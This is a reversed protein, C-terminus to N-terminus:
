YGPILFIFKQNNENLMKEHSLCVEPLEKTDQIQLGGVQIQNPQLPEPYDIANDSNVLM